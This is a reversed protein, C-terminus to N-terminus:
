GWGTGGGGGGGTGGTPGTAGTAGTGGGTTSVPAKVLAGKANVVYWVKKYGEGNIQGAKADGAFYYLPWGAYTVQRMGKPAKITGLLKASLGTGARPKVTAKVLLSPWYKACSANATCKNVHKRDLTYRYLVKGNAAALVKGYKASAVLKVTAASRTAAMAAMTTGVAAVAVLLLPLVIRISRRRM